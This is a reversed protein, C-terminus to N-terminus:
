AAEATGDILQVPRRLRLATPVPDVARRYDAAYAGGAFVLVREAPFLELADAIAQVADHDGVHGTALVEARRLSGV